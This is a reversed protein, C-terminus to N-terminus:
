PKEQPAPPPTNPADASAFRVIAQLVAVITVPISAKPPLAMVALTIAIILGCVGVLTSKPNNAFNAKFQAWSM